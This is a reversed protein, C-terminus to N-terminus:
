DNASGIGIKRGREHLPKRGEARYARYIQFEHQIFYGLGFAIIAMGATRKYAFVWSFLGVAM